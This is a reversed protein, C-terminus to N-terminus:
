MKCKKDKGSEASITKRIIISFADQRGIRGAYSLGIRLNLTDQELPAVIGLRPLTEKDRIFAFLAMLLIASLLIGIKFKM